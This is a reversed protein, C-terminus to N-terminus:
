WFYCGSKDEANKYATSNLRLLTSQKANRTPNNRIKESQMLIWNVGIKMFTNYFHAHILSLHFETFFIGKREM